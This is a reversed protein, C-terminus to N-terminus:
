ENELIRKIFLYTVRISIAIELTIKTKAQMYGIVALLLTFFACGLLFLVCLFLTTKILEVIAYM